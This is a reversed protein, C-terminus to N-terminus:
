NEYVAILEDSQPDSSIEAIAPILNERDTVTISQLKEKLNSFPCFNSPATNLNYAPDPVRITGAAELVEQFRKSNHSFTNDLHV